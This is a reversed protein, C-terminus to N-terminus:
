NYDQKAYNCYDADRAVPFAVMKASLKRAFWFRKYGKTFVDMKVWKEQKLFVIYNTATDYNAVRPEVAWSCWQM